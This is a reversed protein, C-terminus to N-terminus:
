PMWRAIALAKLIGTRRLLREVRRITNGGAGKGEVHALERIVSPIPRPRWDLDNAEPVATLGQGVPEDTLLWRLVNRLFNGNGAEGLLGFTGVEFAHPGGFLAFRGRGHFGAVAIPLPEFSIRRQTRDFAICGGGPSLALPQAQAGALITFTAMSRWRVM